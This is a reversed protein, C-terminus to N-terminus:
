HAILQETSTNVGVAESENPTIYTAQKPSDRIITSNTPNLIVKIGNEYCYGIVYEVTEM